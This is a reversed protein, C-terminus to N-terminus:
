ALPLGPDRETARKRGAGAKRIRGTPLGTGRAIERLGAHIARRSGGTVRAGGEGAHDRAQMWRRPGLGADVGACQHCRRGHDPLIDRDAIEAM